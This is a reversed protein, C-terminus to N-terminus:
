CRCYFFSRPLPRPAFHHLFQYWPFSGHEFGLFSAHRAEFVTQHCCFVNTLCFLFTILRGIKCCWRRICIQLCICIRVCLRLIIKLLQDVSYFIKFYKKYRPLPFQRLTRRARNYGCEHRLNCWVFRRFGSYRVGCARLPRHWRLFCLALTCYVPAHM